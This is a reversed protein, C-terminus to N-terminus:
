FQELYQIILNLRLCQFLFLNTTNFLVHPFNFANGFTTITYFDKQVIGIVEKVQDNCRRWIRIGARAEKM